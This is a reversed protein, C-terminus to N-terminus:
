GGYPGSNHQVGSNQAYQGSLLEARAPCCLPHPSQAQTFTMGQRMLLRRVNPLYGLDDKRMDDTLFVVVNPAESAPERSTDSSEVGQGPTTEPGASVAQAGALAILVIGAIGTLTLRLTQPM